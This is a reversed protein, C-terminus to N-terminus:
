RWIELIPEPLLNTYKEILEKPVDSSKIYDKNREFFLEIYKM